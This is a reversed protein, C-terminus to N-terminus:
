DVIIMMFVKETYSFEFTNEEYDEIVSNQETNLNYYSLFNYSSKM